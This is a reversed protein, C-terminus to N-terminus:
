PRVHYVRVEPGDKDPLRPVTLILRSSEPDFLCNRAMKATPLKERVEFRNAGTERLVVLFGEGCSAYVQKRKALPRLPRSAPRGPQRAAM